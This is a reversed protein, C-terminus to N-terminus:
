ECYSSNIFNQLDQDNPHASLATQTLIQCTQLRVFKNEGMISIFRELQEPMNLAVYAQLFPMWEIIDNPYYGSDLATRGLKEVTSWDRRQRALEAQQYFYCWNKVPEKGFISELPIKPHEEAQVLKLQSKSAILMIAKSEDLSFVPQLGDHFHVCSSISPQSIVVVKSFSQTSINGRRHITNEGQGIMIRQINEDNLVVGSLPINIPIKAQKEPYYILNAPGWTIYDESISTLPTQVVLTTGIEIQPARWSVQWWFQKFSESDLAKIMANANHTSLAIFVLVSITLARARYSNILNIALVMAIIAGIAGIITYRSYDSFSIERNVMIVPAIGIAVGLLSGWFGIRTIDLNSNEEQTPNKGLRLFCLFLVLAPIIAICFVTLADRLRLQEILDYFPVSWSQITVSLFGRIFRVGWWLGTYVPSEAFTGLQAGVDTAERASTFLFTRWFLFGIPILVFPWWSKLTKKVNKIWPLNGQSSLALWIFFIRYYEIGIYWEMLGLYIWGTIFAGVLMITKKAATISLAFEVSFAISIMGLLLATFHAQYDVPNIQMLYGPYILFFLTILFNTPKNFKTARTLIWYLTLSGFLRIAYGSIHYPLVNERFLSFLPIQLYARVPRDIAFVEHFIGPGQTFADYILYWDDNMFGIRAAFPLYALSSLLLLAM